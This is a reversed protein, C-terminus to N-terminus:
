ILLSLTWSSSLGVIISLLLDVGYYTSRVEKEKKPRKKKEKSGKRGKMGMGEVRLERGKGSLGFPFIPLKVWLALGKPFGEREHRSKRQGERRIKLPSGM